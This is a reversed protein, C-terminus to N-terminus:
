NQRSFAIFYIQAMLLNWSRLFGMRSVKLQRLLAPVLSICFSWISFYRIPQFYFYRSPQFHLISLFSIKLFHSFQCKRFLYNRETSSSCYQPCLGTLSWGEIWALKMDQYEKLTRMVNLCIYFFLRRPAEQSQRGHGQSHSGRLYDNVGGGFWFARKTTAKLLYVHIHQITWREHHSDWRSSFCSFKLFYFCWEMM